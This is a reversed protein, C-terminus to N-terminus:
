RNKVTANIQVNTTQQLGILAHQRTGASSHAVNTLVQSYLRNYIYIPIPLPSGIILMNIKLMSEM